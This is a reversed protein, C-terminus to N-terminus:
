YSRLMKKWKEISLRHQYANDNDSKEEAIQIAEQGLNIAKRYDGKEAMVEAKKHIYWSHKGNIEIAKDIWELAQDLDRHTHVYYIASSYYNNGVQVMPDKLRNEIQAVIQEDALTGLKFRVITNEWMLQITASTWTLEGIDITFTELHYSSKLPKVNFRLLDDSEEYGYTGQLELNKNLIITWEEENPITLLSYQGAPVKHNALTVEESFSIKTSANAGTRWIEGFPVLEGFIARGGMSPRSYFVEVTAFGVKQKVFGEPSLPPIDIQAQMPPVLFFGLLLLILGTISQTKM